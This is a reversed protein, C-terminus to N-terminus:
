NKAPTILTYNKPLIPQMYMFRELRKRVASDTKAKEPYFLELAKAPIRVGNGRWEYASDWNKEYHRKIRNFCILCVLEKPVFIYQFETTEQEVAVYIHEHKKGRTTDKSSAHPKKNVPKKVPQPAEDYQKVELTYLRKDEDPPAQSFLLQSALISILTLIYKM